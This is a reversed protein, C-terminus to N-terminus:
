NFTFKSSHLHADSIGTINQTGRLISAQSTHSRKKHSSQSRKDVLINRISVLVSTSQYFTSDSITAAVQHIM